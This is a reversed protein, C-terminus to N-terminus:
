STGDGSSRKRRRGRNRKRRSKRTRKGGPQKKAKDDAASTQEPAERGSQEPQTPSGAVPTASEEADPQGAPAESTKASSTDAADQPRALTEAPTDPADPKREPSAPPTRVFHDFSPRQETLKM